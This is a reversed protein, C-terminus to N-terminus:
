FYSSSTAIEFTALECTAIEFTSVEPGKGLASFGTVLYLRLVLSTDFLHWLVVFRMRRKWARFTARSSTSYLPVESM